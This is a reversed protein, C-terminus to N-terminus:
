DFRSFNTKAARGLEKIRFDREAPEALDALAASEARSAREPNKVTKKSTASTKSGTVKLLGSYEMGILLRDANVNKSRMLAYFSLVLHYWKM